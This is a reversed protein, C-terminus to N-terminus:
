RAVRRARPKTRRSPTARAIPRRKPAPASFQRSLLGFLLARYEHHIWRREEPASRAYHGMTAKNVQLIYEAIRAEDGKRLSPHLSRLMGELRTRLRHRPGTPLTSSPADLLPLFAPHEREFVVMMTVFGDVFAEISETHLATCLGEFDEIQRTRLARAIAQKNPFFQYLSGICAGARNAIASMTAAEYGSAAFESVAAALLVQVRKAGREQIPLRRTCGSLSSTHRSMYRFM